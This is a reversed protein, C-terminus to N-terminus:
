DSGSPNDANKSPNTVVEYPTIMMVSFKQMGASYPLRIELINDKNKELITSDWWRKVLRPRFPFQPDLPECEHCQALFLSVKQYGEFNKMHTTRWSNNAAGDFSCIDLGFHALSHVFEQNNIRSPDITIKGTNLYNWGFLWYPYEEGLGAFIMVAYEAVTELLQQSNINELESYVNHGHSKPHTLNGRIENFEVLTRKLNESVKLEKGSILSPWESFKREFNRGEKPKSASSGRRLINVIEEEIVGTSALRLRYKENLLAEVFSIAYYLSSTLHHYKLFESQEENAITLERFFSSFAQWTPYILWPNM